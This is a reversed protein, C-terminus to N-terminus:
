KLFEFLVLVIMISATNRRLTCRTKLAWGRTMAGFCCLQKRLNQLPPSGNAVSHLIQSTRSKFELVRPVCTLREGM